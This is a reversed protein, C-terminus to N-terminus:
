VLPFLFTTFSHANEKVNMSFTNSFFAGGMCPTKSVIFYLLYSTLSTKFKIIIFEHYIVKSVAYLRRLHFFVLEYNVKKQVPFM